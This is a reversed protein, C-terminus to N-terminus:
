RLDTEVVEKTQNTGTFTNGAGLTFDGVNAAGFIRVGSSSNNDFHTGAVTIRTIKEGGLVHSADVILGAGTAAAGNGSLDASILV